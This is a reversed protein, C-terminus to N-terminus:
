KAGKGASKGTKRKKTKRKAGYLRRAEAACQARRKKTKAKTCAKLAKALKQARTLPESPPTTSKVAPLPALNGAGSPSLSGPSPAALPAPPAGQCAEGACEDVKPAPFGGDVRADYLDSLEDKDQGVLQAETTFFVNQGSADIGVLGAEVAGEPKNGDPTGDSILYVNGGRWLYVNRTGGHVQPTLADSSQFVVMSGDESIVRRGELVKYSGYREGLDAPETSTNGDENFGDQGKSIRILAEHQAEYLFVQSVTSTDDPTLDASSMFVLQEGDPTAEAQGLNLLAPLTAIFATRGQAWVYLNDQGSTPSNHEANAGSLVGKAIFYVQSGDQSIAVVSQVEASPGSVPISVRELDPCPNVDGARAPPAGADGPLVCEYLNSTEDTDGAVLPQESTFFVKSGDTSAGQYTVAKTVDCSDATVCGTSGAVNVTVTKGVATGAGPEGIRAFLQNETPATGGECEPSGAGKALFFVTSGDASISRAEPEVAGESRDAGYGEHGAAETGCQSILAGTNDLGVLAPVDGGEGSHGTGVYEYLSSIEANFSQKTQDFPWRYPQVDFLVHSLDTSGGVAYVGGDTGDGSTSDAGGHTAQDRDSLPVSPGIETVAGGSELFYLNPDSCLSIQGETSAIGAGAWIGSTSM